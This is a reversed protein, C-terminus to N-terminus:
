TSSAKTQAPPQASKATLPMRLNMIENYLRMTREGNYFRERLPVVINLVLYVDLPNKNNLLVKLKAEVNNWNLMSM